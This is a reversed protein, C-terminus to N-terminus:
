YNYCFKISRTTEDKHEINIKHADEPLFGGIREPWELIILNERDEIMDKWGLMLIEEDNELRYADIHILNKFIENKTKYIKMIVFTPSIVNEMVGLHKAIEQTMTTKGVGLDGSLAIVVAKEKPMNSVMELIEIAKKEIDEFKLEEEKMKIYYCLQGAPM